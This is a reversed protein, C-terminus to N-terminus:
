DGLEEVGGVQVVIKEVSKTEVLCSTVKLGVVVALAALSVICHNQISL